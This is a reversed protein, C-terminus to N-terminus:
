TLACTSRWFLLGLLLLRAACAGHYLLLPFLNRSCVWRGNDTIAVQQTGVDVEVTVVDGFGGQVEDVANDLVEWLLHHLGRSGTSGIYM